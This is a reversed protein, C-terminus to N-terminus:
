QMLCPFCDGYFIIPDDRTELNTFACNGVANGSEFLVTGSM